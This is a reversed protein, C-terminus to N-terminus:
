NKGMRPTHTRTGHGLKISHVIPAPYVPDVAAVEIKVTVYQANFSGVTSSDPAPIDKRFKIPRLVPPYQNIEGFDVVRTTVQVGDNFGPSATQTPRYEYGTLTVKMTYKYAGSAVVEVDQFSLVQDLTEAIPQSQWSYSSRPTDADYVYASAQSFTYTPDSTADTVKYPFAWLKGDLAVDYCNYPTEPPAAPKPYPMELRWWGGGRTDMVYNNPALIMGQWYAFRGRPGSYREALNGHTHDWFFGEMQPSLNQSTDGGSWAYVGTKSGYVFGLPTQVGHSVVGHTSEVAPMRRQTPQDLDNSVLMAGGEHKVLLLQTNTVTGLAGTRSVNDEGPLLPYYPRSAVLASYNGWTTLGGPVGSVLSGYNSYLATGKEDKPAGPSVLDWYQLPALWDSYWIMEWYQYQSYSGGELYHRAGSRQHQSVMVLRGQHFTAGTIQEPYVQYALVRGEDRMHASWGDYRQSIIGVQYAPSTYAGGVYSSNRYSSMITLRHTYTDQWQSIGPSQSTFPPGVTEPHAGNSAPYLAGQETASLVRVGDSSGGVLSVVAIMTASTFKPNFLLNATVTDGYLRDQTLGRLLIGTPLAPIATPDLTTSRTYPTDRRWLFSSRTDLVESTDDLTYGHVADTVPGTLGSMAGKEAIAWLYHLPQDRVTGEVPAAGGTGDPNFTVPAGLQADLLYALGPRGYGDVTWGNAHVGISHDQQVRRPLPTLSGTEDAICGFTGDPAASGPQNVTGISRISTSATGGGIPVGALRKTTIGPTFNDITIFETPAAM